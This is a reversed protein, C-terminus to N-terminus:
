KSEEVLGMKEVSFDMIKRVYEQAENTMKAIDDIIKLLNKKTYKTFVDMTVVTKGRIGNGRRELHKKQGDFIMNSFSNPDCLM